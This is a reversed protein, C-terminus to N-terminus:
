NGQRERMLELDVSGVGALMTDIKQSLAFEVQDDDTLLQGVTRPQLQQSFDGPVCRVRQSNERGLPGPELEELAFESGEAQETCEGIRDRRVPQQRRQSERLCSQFLDLYRWGTDSRWPLWLRCGSWGPDLWGRRGGCTLQKVAGSMRPGNRGYEGSKLVGLEHGGPKGCLKRRGRLTLAM